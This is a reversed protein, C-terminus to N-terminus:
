RAASRNLAVAAPILTKFAAGEVDAIRTAPAEDSSMKTQKMANAVERSSLISGLGSRCIRMEDASRCAPSAATLGDPGDTWCVALHVARQVTVRAGTRDSNKVCEGIM